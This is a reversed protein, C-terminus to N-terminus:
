DKGYRERWLKTLQMAIDQSIEVRTGIPLEITASARADDQSPFFESKIYPFTFLSAFFIAFCATITTKRHRVAWNIRNAYWNDLKDLAKAIPIYLLKFLKSQKKQLKLM